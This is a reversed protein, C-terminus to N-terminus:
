SAVTLVPSRVVESCESFDSLCVFYIIIIIIIIFGIVVIVLSM